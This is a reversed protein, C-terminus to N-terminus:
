VAAQSARSTCTGRSQSRLAAPPPLPHLEPVRGSSFTGQMHRMTSATLAPWSCSLGPHPIATDPVQPPQLKPMVLCATQGGFLPHFPVTQSSRQPLPTAPTGPQRPVTSPHMALCLSSLWPGASTHM